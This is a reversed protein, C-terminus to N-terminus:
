VEAGSSHAAGKIRAGADHEVSVEDLQDGPSNM